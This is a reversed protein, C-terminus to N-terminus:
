QAQWDINKKVTSNATVEIEAFKRGLGAPKVSNLELRYKGPLLTFTKPNSETSAYTRGAGAPKGTALSIINITADVPQGGQAAWLQLEGSDFNYTYALNESNGLIQNNIKIEPKNSIEICGFVVDYTGPPIKVKAPNSQSHNYTRAAAVITKTGANFVQVLADALMGNRTVKIEVTGQKFEVDKYTTDKEKVVLSTIKLPTYGTIEVPMIEVDYSGPAVQMIRPNTEPSEYTRGLLLEKSQGKKYIKVTADKLKGDLTTKVAIFANGASVPQITTQLATALEEGNNAPFYQGGGAQAICELPSLDKETIGFGVVHMTVQTGARRAKRITECANGSCTELGDSILIVTVPGSMNDILKLAHAMSLAIPTKGKPNLKNITRIFVEKDFKGIPMLTEIDQCDSASNHGYAILGVSAGSPIAASLKQMTSRAAEIKTSNDLNAWMSGSADFIFLITQETAAKAYLQHLLLTCFLFCALPKM